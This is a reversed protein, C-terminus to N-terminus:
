KFVEQRYLERIFLEVDGTSLGSQLAIQSVSHRGDMKMLAMQTAQTGWSGNSPLPDIERRALSIPGVISSTPLDEKEIFDIMDKLLDLMEGLRQSHCSDVDDLSTHYEPPVGRCVPVVPIEFHPGDYFMEDNGIVGRYSSESVAPDRDFTVTRMVHDMWSTGGSSRSWALETNAGALDLYAGGVIDGIARGQNLVAAATFYEPGLVLRYTFKRTSQKLWNFLELLVAINALGDNVQGPHCTHASLLITKEDLGPLECDIYCLSGPSREVDIDVRYRGPKLAKAVDDPLSFGWDNNAHPDYWSRYHFPIGIPSSARHFLHPKLDELDLEGKFSGCCSWLSLPHKAYDAIVVGDSTKLVGQKVHWSDPIIWDLCRTGSPVEFMETDLLDAIHSTLERTAECVPVRDLSAFQRIFEMM